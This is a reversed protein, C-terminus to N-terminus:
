PSKNEIHGVFRISIEPKEPYNTKLTLFGNYKREETSINRFVAQYVQGKEITKLEYAIRGSLSLKVPELILPEDKHARIIVVGTLDDDASGKLFVGRPEVTISESIRAYVGLKIRPEKPDNSYVVVDKSIIGNTDRHGETNIQLIISGKQGPPITQDFRVVTVGRSAQVKLIELDKNGNNIIQFAHELSTKQKADRFSVTREPISIQPAIQPESFTKKSCAMGMLVFIMMFSCCCIKLFKARM